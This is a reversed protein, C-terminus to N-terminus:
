NEREYTVAVESEQYFPGEKTYQLIKDYYSLGLNEESTNSVSLNKVIEYKLERGEKETETRRDLLYELFGLVCFFFFFIGVYWIVTFYNHCKM